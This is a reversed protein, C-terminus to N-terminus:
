IHILSLHLLVIPDGNGVEAYAMERDLVQRRLKRYPFLASISKTMNAKGENYYGFIM